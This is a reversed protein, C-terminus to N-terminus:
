YPLLNQSASENGTEMKSLFPVLISLMSFFFFLDLASLSAFVIFVNGWCMKNKYAAHSCQPSKWSIGNQRKM